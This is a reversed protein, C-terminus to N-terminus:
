ARRSPRWGQSYDRWNAAHGFYPPQVVVCGASTRAAHTPVGMKALVHAEEPTANWGYLGLKSAEVVVDKYAGAVLKVDKGVVRGDLFAALAAAEQVHIGPSDMTAPTGDHKRIMKSPPVKVDAAAWIADVLAPSPLEYGGATALALAEGIGVPAIAFPCVLYKVGDLMVEVFDEIPPITKAELPVVSSPPGNSAARELAAKTMPGVSGDPTLGAAAQFAKTAAITKPGRVGDILGPQYGLMTLVEQLDKVDDVSRPPPTAPPPSSKGVDGAYARVRDLYYAWPFSPGPDQHGKGGQLGNTVDVHGCIGRKTRDKLDAPTLKVVPIGYKACLGGVLEASRELMAISYADAWQEPTQAAYGAHEVGISYGNVPGAHWAIDKDEVCQVVSDNDVVYHASTNTGKPQSAFWNGVNEATSKTEGAEATHVVILDIALRNARQFSHAQIFKM